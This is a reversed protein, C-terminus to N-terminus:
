GLHDHWRPDVAAEVDAGPRVVAPALENGISGATRWDIYGPSKAYCARPSSCDISMAYSQHLWIADAGALWDSRVLRNTEVPTGDAANYPWVQAGCEAIFMALLATIM